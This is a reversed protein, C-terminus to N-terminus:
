NPLKEIRPPGDDWRCFVSSTEEGRYFMVRIWTPAKWVRMSWGGEPTASVLSASSDGMDFVARGGPVTVGQVRGDSDGHDPHGHGGPSTPGSDDSGTRGGRGNPTGASRSPKATHSTPPRSTRTPSPKPRHTSSAQPRATSSSHDTVPLARPPDYATEALVAHVGIWSVTVAAGTALTWAGAQVVGRQM